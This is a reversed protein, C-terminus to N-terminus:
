KEEMRKSMLGKSNDEREEEDEEEKQKSKTRERDAIDRSFDRSKYLDKLVKQIEKQKPRTLKIEKIGAAKGIAFIMKQVVPTLLVGLDVNYAGEIFGSFIIVRTLSEVSVGTELMLIIKALTDKNNLKDWIFVSAEEKSTFRPPNEWKYNKPTDTLSQGAIPADFPNQQRELPM